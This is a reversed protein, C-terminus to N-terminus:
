LVGAAALSFLMTSCVGSVFELTSVSCPWMVFKKMNESKMERMGFCMQDHSRQRAPRWSLNPTLPDDMTKSASSENSKLLAQALRREACVVEELDDADESVDVSELIDDDKRPHAAEVNM